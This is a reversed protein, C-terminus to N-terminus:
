APSLPALINRLHYEEAKTAIYAPRTHRSLVYIHSFLQMYKCVAVFRKRVIEAEVWVSHAENLLGQLLIMCEVWVYRSLKSDRKRRIGSQASHLTADRRFEYQEKFLRKGQNIDLM